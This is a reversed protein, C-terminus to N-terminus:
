QIEYTVEFFATRTQNSSFAGALITAYFNAVATGSIIDMRGNQATQGTGNLIMIPKFLSTRNVAPLNTISVTSTNGLGSFSGRITCKKGEIIYTIDSSFGSQFGTHTAVLTTWTLPPSGNLLRWENTDIKELLAGAYRNEIVLSGSSSNVVVIGGAFPAITVTGTNVKYIPIKTGIPFAEVSNLPVTLIHASTSDMEIGKTDKDTLALTYDMDTKRDFDTYLNEKLDLAAQTSTGVTSNVTSLVEAATQAADATAQAAAADSIAQAAVSAANGTATINANVENKVENADDARWQNIDPLPNVVVQVKDTYTIAM